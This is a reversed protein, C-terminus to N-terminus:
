SSITDPHSSVCHLSVCLALSFLLGAAESWRKQARARIGACGNVWRVVGGWASLNLTLWQLALTQHSHQLCPTHSTHSAHLAHPPPKLVPDQSDSAFLAQPQQRLNDATDGMRFTTHIHTLSLSRSRALSRSRSRALSLALSLSLSLIIFLYIFTYM